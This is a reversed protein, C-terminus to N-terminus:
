MEEGFARRRLETRRQEGGRMRPHLALAAEVSRLAGEPDGREEQLVSLTMLAGFHRPELRLTEQLDRAAAAADGLAAHAQARLHWAEAAGPSLVIAADFDELAEDPANAQMNRIGRRLLVAAPSAAEGWLARIRAEVLAGGAEDPADRLAEFLRDMEVRRPDPRPPPTQARAALPGALLAALVLRRMM